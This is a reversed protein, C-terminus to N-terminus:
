FRYRLGFLLSNDNLVFGNHTSSSPIAGNITDGSTSVRHVPIDARATGFFRYELTAEVGPVFGLPWAFGAMAQYAFASASGFTVLDPGMFFNHGPLAFIGLGNGSADSLDLWAYGLGGGIYPQVPLTVGFNALPIDYEGNAMVAWTRLSGQVNTLPLRSGNQRLTDISSIGNSRYSGELEACATASRGALILL